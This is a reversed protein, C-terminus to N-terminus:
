FFEVEVLSDSWRVSKKQKNNKMDKRLASRHYPRVYARDKTIDTNCRNHSGIDKSSNIVQPHSENVSANNEDEYPNSLFPEVFTKGLYYLSIVVVVIVIFLIINLKTIKNPKEYKPSEYISSSDNLQIYAKIDNM